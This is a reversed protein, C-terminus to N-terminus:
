TPILRLLDATSKGSLISQHEIEVSHARTCDASIPWFRENWLPRTQETLVLVGEGSVNVGYTRSGMFSIYSMRIDNQRCAFVSHGRRLDRFLSDNRRM